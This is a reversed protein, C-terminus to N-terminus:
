GAFPNEVRVSGYVQGHNLDETYLLGAGLREAAAIIAADYYGIRYRRSTAVGERVLADDIPTWPRACLSDLWRDLREEPFPPVSKRRVAHVFEAM